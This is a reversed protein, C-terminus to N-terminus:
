YSTTMGCSERLECNNGPRGWMTGGAWHYERTHRREDLQNDRNVPNVDPGTTRSWRWWGHVSWWNIGVFVTRRRVHDPQCHQHRFGAAKKRSAELLITFAKKRIHGTRHQPTAPHRCPYHKSHLSPLLQSNRSDQPIVVVLTTVCFLFFCFM